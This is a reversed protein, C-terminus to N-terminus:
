TCMAEHNVTSEADDHNSNDDDSEKNNLIADNLERVVFKLM